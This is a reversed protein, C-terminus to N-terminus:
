RGWSEYSIGRTGIMYRNRRYKVEVLDYIHTKYDSCYLIWAPIRYGSKILKWLRKYNRSTKFGKINPTM